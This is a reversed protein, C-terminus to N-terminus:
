AGRFLRELANALATAMSGSLGVRIFVMPTIKETTDIVECGNTQYAVSLKSSLRGYITFPTLFLLPTEARKRKPARKDSVILVVPKGEKLPALLCRSFDLSDRSTSTASALSVAICM